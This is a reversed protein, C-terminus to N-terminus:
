LKLRGCPARPPWVGYSFSRWFVALGTHAFVTLRVDLDLVLGVDLGDEDDTNARSCPLTSATVGDAAFAPRGADPPAQGQALLAMARAPKKAGRGCRALPYRSSLRLGTNPMRGPPSDPAKARRWCSWPV